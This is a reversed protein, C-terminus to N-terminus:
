CSPHVQRASTPEEDGRGIRRTCACLHAETHTHTSTRVCLYTPASPLPPFVLPPCPQCQWLEHHSGPLDRGLRCQPGWLGSCQRDSYSRLPRLPQPSGSTGREWGPPPWYLALGGSILMLSDQPCKPILPVQQSSLSGSTLTPCLPAVHDLGEGVSGRLRTQPAPLPCQSGQSDACVIETIGPTLTSTGM